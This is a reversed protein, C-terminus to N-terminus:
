KRRTTIIIVGNAGRSGYISASTGKLVEVSQVMNPDIHDIGDMTIGDVIFLPDNPGNISKIGRIVYRYGDGEETIELGPVRGKLYEAMNTYALVDNEEMSIKSVPTALHRRTTSGYGINVEEDAYNITKLSDRLAKKQLRAEKRAERKEKRTQAYSVTVTLFLLITTLCVYIIYDTKM